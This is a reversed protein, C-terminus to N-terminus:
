PIFAKQMERQNNLERKKDRMYEERSFEVLQRPHKQIHAYWRVMAATQRYEMTSKNAELVSQIAFLYRMVNREIIGQLGKIYTARGQDDTGTITFGVKNHGLTALYTQMALKALFGFQYRYRFRLFSHQADIPIAQLQLQYNSTGIPGEAASLKVNLQQENDTLLKFQYQLLFADEPPEYHNRGVFFQVDNKDYLCTKINIHLIALECWQSPQALTNRLSIFPTDLVAFVDGQAINNGIKSKLVIPSGFISNALAPKLQQYRSFLSSPSAAQTAVPQTTTEATAVLSHASLSFYVVFICLTRLM